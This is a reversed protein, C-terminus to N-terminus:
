RGSPSWDCGRRRPTASRTRGPGSPDRRRCPSVLPRGVAPPPWEDTQALDVSVLGFAPLGDPGSRLSEAGATEPEGGRAARLAAVPFARRSVATVGPALNPHEALRARCISSTPATADEDRRRSLDCASVDLRAADARCM